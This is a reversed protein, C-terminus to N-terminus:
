TKKASKPSVNSPTLLRQWSPGRQISRSEWIGRVNLGKHAKWIPLFWEIHCCIMTHLSNHVKQEETLLNGHLAKILNHNKIDLQALLTNNKKSMYAKDDWLVTDQPTILAGM